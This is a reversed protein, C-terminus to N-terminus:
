AGGAKRTAKMPSFLFTLPVFAFALLACYLFVDKYALFGAQAILTQYTQHMATRTAAGASTGLNQVASALRSLTGRLNPNAQSLNSSLYAMHVQTRMQIAATSLSIGVSGAVNRFMTFLATADGQLAQPVTLYALV